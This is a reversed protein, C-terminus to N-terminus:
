HNRHVYGTLVLDPGAHAVTWGGVPIAEALREIGDGGIAPIERGGLIRPAVFAVIKDIIGAMLANFALDPGCELLFSQIERAYLEASLQELTGRFILADSFGTIRNRRDLIVRLLPRRRSLGSRDTLQPNDALVTGSGTVLADSRHRLRHVMARSEESTIWRSEGHRTGIKGDLTMAIKLIGFPRGQSKYVTFAENLQRAERELIGSEVTIGAARLMELGKGNVEPNPDKMATVVRAVGADILAKACASTRGQHSCPELNTYVTSGRAAPGAQELAIVEAHRIGEYTYFGEGIIRGDKVIVCGVMVGPSTLGTGKEALELTRRVYDEAGQAEQPENKV